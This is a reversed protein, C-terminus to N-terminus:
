FIKKYSEINSFAKENITYRKEAIDTVASFDSKFLQSELNDEWVFQLERDKGDDGLVMRIKRYDEYFYEQLLPIIKEKFISALTDVTPSDKLKAFFAHGITHERDYLFIIRENIIELMQAVDFGEVFGAGIKRLIQVDPMMEVFQFRRRLATDMLAISRDATNMTGIIYVNDPISFEEGSYPLIASAAELCGKRKTDEMLTILEGFIKSINGRNIEDIIFVYPSQDSQITLNTNSPSKRAAFSLLEDKNIHPARAVTARHLIKGNNYPRIDESLNTALWKVNRTTTNSESDLIYAEDDLVIAIGNIISRSTISTVILDGKQIDNVFPSAGEEDYAFDIRIRGNEFCDQIVAEKIKVEWVMTDGPVSIEESTNIKVSQAKKCFEKFIGDKIDYKINGNEDTEPKIGEIFEEYGYSQHFTTFAIRGSAKLANYREVVDAYDEKCVDEINKGECIAVAYNVSNYTKGTGPPGYLIMNKNYEAMAKEGGKPLYKLIDFEKLAEYLTTRLKLVWASSESNQADRGTYLIRWRSETGGENIPINDINVSKTIREALKTSVENYFNPISRNSELIRSFVRGYKKELQNFTAEGGLSFITAMVMLSNSDFVFPNNLLELWKEKSIGPNFDEPLVAPLNLIYRYYPILSKVAKMLEREFFLNDSDGKSIYKSVQVKRYVKHELKGKIINASDTIPEPRGLKNIGTVYTLGSAIDLPMDLHTHYKILEENTSNDKDIELSVRFCANIESIMEVYVSISFPLTKYSEYKMQLWLYKCTKTGSGDLWSIPMCYDLGFKTKCFEAIKKLEEVTKLGNEKIATLRQIEEPNLESDPNHYPVESNNELYDLIGTYDISNM